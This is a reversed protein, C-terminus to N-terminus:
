SSRAQFLYMLHCAELGCVMKGANKKYVHFISSRYMSFSPIFHTDYVVPVFMKLCGSQARKEFYLLKINWTYLFTLCMTMMSTRALVLLNDKQKGMMCTASHPMDFKKSLMGQVKQGGKRELFQIHKFSYYHCMKGHLKFWLKQSQCIRATMMNWLHKCHTLMKQLFFV